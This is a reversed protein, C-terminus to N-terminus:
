PLPMGPASVIGAMRLIEQYEEDTLPTIILRVSKLFKMKRLLSNGRMEVLSVQRPLRELARLDVVLCKGEDDHPDAYPDRTVEAISYLSRDPASHYCLIRDGKRVQKLQRLADQKCGAGRWMEKGKVFLTDWHYHHPDVAFLWHRRPPPHKTM